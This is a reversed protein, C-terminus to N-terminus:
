AMEVRNRGARKARYLAMDALDILQGKSQDDAYQAVGVSVTVSAPESGLPIRTREISERIRESAVRAGELDTNPMIVTFEEGGYRAPIDVQERLAMRIVRAIEQLIHDGAQHGHADNFEKFQDIDIMALSLPTRYRRAAAMARDLEQQFHRHNYLQTLGDTEALHSMQEILRSTSIATGIMEAMMAALHEEHKTFGTKKKGVTLVGVLMEHEEQMGVVLPCLLAGEQLPEDAPIPRFERGTREEYAPRNEVSLPDRETRLFHVIATDADNVLHLAPQQPREPWAGQLTILQTERDFLFLAGYGAELFLPVERVAANTIIDLDVMKFKRSLEALQGSKITHNQMATLQRKFLMVANLASIYARQLELYKKVLANHDLNALDEAAQQGLSELEQRAEDQLPDRSEPEGTTGSELNM